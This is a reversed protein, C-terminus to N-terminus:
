IPWFGSFTSVYASLSSICAARGRPHGFASMVRRRGRESDWRPWESGSGLVCGANESIQRGLVVGDQHLGKCGREGGREGRPTDESGLFQSPTGSLRQELGQLGLGWPVRSHM